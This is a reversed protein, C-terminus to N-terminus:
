VREIREGPADQKFPRRTAPAPMRHSNRSVRGSGIAALLEGELARGAAVAFCEDHGDVWQTYVRNSPEGAFEPRGRSAVGCQRRSWRSAMALSRGSLPTSGSVTKFAINLVFQAAARFIVDRSAPFVGFFM